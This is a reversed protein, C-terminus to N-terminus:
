LRNHDYNAGPIDLPGDYEGAGPGCLLSMSLKAAMADRFRVALQVRRRHTNSVSCLAQANPVM